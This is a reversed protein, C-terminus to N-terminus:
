HRLYFSRSMEALAGDYAARASAENDVIIADEPVGDWTDADVEYIIKGNIERAARITAPILIAQGTTYKSQM